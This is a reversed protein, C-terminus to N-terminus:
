NRRPPKAILIDGLDLAEGPKVSFEKRIVPEGGAFGASYDVIRYSAGPILVPLTVRGQADSRADEAHNVPDLRALTDETAFLSGAKAGAAATAPAGPTVVMRVLQNVLYRDLPRGDPDVLRARASGCPELRVTVPEGSASRASFRATAGLKREPDLFFAPVESAPELGHLAFRGDLVQGRSRDYAVRWDKWGGTAGGALIIRSYVWAGRAPRGDPGAVRVHVAAGRRVTFDVEQDPAEPELDVSRYASAYLRRRGPAAQYTGGQAGFERLVDDDDPGQVVLYGPGTPAAIRYTGDPGTAAPTGLGQFPGPAAVPNPAFRVVAGAVPRGTGEETITGHVIVGRNLALDVTQEVAGKPWTILKEAILYPVSEAGQAGVDVRQADLSVPARFRGEADAALHVQEVKVQAHPVPRGTVADTVRGTVARAPQVAIAIPKPDRGPEIRITPVPLGPVPSDANEDALITTDAFAFRPDDSVLTCALGRGLGRLAFRGEDDSIAPGPWAVRDRFPREYMDPRFIGMSTETRRARNLSYVYVGVGRAPRGQVDFLRGRIVQEPRLSVDAMPPDADPDLESWGVGHGPALAVVAVAADRASSTRPLEIRYRGSGDCRGDRAVLPGFTQLHTPRDFLKSRVIVMVAARPVPKGAPDLVRGTVTMRAAPDAAPEPGTAPAANARPGIRLMTLPLLLGLSSIVAIAAAKRGLPGRRRSPDLIARLPGEFQSRRAMAAARPAQLGRAIELLHGADDSARAGALLVVDNCTREREIRMRRAALRALPHFWYIACAFRAIAQTLCDLRKVHALEHLLATWWADDIPEAQRTWRRLAVWGALPSSLVALVGVLWALWPWAPVPIRWSSVSPPGVPEAAAPRDPRAAPEPGLLDDEGFATGDVTAVTRASPPAPSHVTPTRAPDGADGAAPLVPWSWGPLILCLIPLALAAGLGLCWALHRASSSSRRLALAALGAATLVLTARTAVDPALRDLLRANMM